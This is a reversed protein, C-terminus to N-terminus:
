YLVKTEVLREIDAGSLGLLDRAVFENDQGVGPAPFFRWAPGSDKQWPLGAVPRPEGDQEV